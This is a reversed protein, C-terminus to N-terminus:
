EGMKILIHLLVFQIIFVQKICIGIFLLKYINSWTDLKSKSIFKLLSFMFSSNELKSDKM